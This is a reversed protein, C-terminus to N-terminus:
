ALAVPPPLAAQSQELEFYDSRAFRFLRAVVLDPFTDIRTNFANVAGNYYRRAFQIQNETDALERQLDLFSNSAKLDPYREVVAVLRQLGKGFSNEFAGRPGPAADRAGTGRLEALSELLAREYKAYSKVLEVLRPVLDHRRVLQVDVDSWAQVVRNRDRVLRNYSFVVCALVAAAILSLAIVIPHYALAM